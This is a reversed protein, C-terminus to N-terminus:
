FRELNGSFKRLEENFEQKIRKMSNRDDDWWLGKGRPSTNIEDKETAIECLRHLQAIQTKSTWLCLEGFSLEWHYCKWNVNIKRGVEVDFKSSKRTKVFHSSSRTRFVAFHVKSQSTGCIEVGNPLLLNLISFMEFFKWREMNFEMLIRYCVKFTYLVFVVYGISVLGSGPSGTDKPSEFYSIFNRRFIEDLGGFKM